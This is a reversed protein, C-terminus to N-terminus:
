HDMESQSPIRSKRRNGDTRHATQASKWAQRETQQIRDADTGAATRLLEQHRIETQIRQTGTVTSAQLKRDYRYENRRIEPAHFLHESAREIIIISCAACSYLYEVGTLYRAMFFRLGIPM